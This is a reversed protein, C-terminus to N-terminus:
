ASECIRHNGHDLVIRTNFGGVNGQLTRKRAFVTSAVPFVPNPYAKAVKIM